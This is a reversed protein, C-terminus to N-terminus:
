SPVKGSFVAGVTECVISLDGIIKAPNRKTDVVM